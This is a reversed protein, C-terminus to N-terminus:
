FKLYLLMSAFIYLTYYPTNSDYTYNMLEQRLINQEYGQFIHTKADKDFIVKNQKIIPLIQLMLETLNNTAPTAPTPYTLTNNYEVYFKNVESKEVYIFTNEKNFYPCESPTDIVFSDIIKVLNGNLSQLLKIAIGTIQTRYTTLFVLTESTELYEKLKDENCEFYKPMFVSNITDKSKLDFLEYCGWVMADLRDPSEGRDGLYGRNTMLRMQRELKNLPKNLKIKKLAFLNAVPLARNMKDQGARVEKVSLFPDSEILVAKIFDGGNNIEVVINNTKYISKALTIQQTFEFPSMVGSFDDLIAVEGSPLKGLVIIGFENSNNNNSAAPDCAIIIKSFQSADHYQPTLDAEKFISDESYTMLEGQWIHKFEAEPLRTKDDLMVAELPTNPFFPNDNYNIHQVLSQAPPTQSIFTQYIIDDDRYPNFSIIIKPQHTRTVSPVLLQWSRKSFAEAEEIWTINIDSISKLNVANHSRMGSFIFESGANSTINMHTIKFEDNLNLTDIWKEITAKVSEAISAQTERICLIRKKQTAAILVLSQAINETKGGGRGGYYCYFLYDNYFLPKYHKPIKTTM